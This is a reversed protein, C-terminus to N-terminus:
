CWHVFPINLKSKEENIQSLPLNLAPSTTHGIMRINIKVTCYKCHTLENRNEKNEQESIICSNEIRLRLKLFTTTLLWLSRRFCHHVFKRSPQKKVEALHRPWVWYFCLTTSLLNALFFFFFFLSCFHISFVM